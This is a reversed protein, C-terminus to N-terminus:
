ANAPMNVLGAFLTGTLQWGQPGQRCLGLRELRTGVTPPVVTTAPNTIITQVALQEQEALCEWIERLRLGISLEQSLARQWEAYPLRPTQLIWWHVVAKLLTPFGGSLALFQAIDQETPYIGAAKTWNDLMFRSDQATLTGVLCTQTTLMRGLEGLAYIQQQYDPTIRMGMLLLVTERFRNRLASLTTSVNRQSAATLQDIRDVVFLLGVNTARCHAVLAFLATQLTFPDTTQLKSETAQLLPLPFYGPALAASELIGRLLTHYIATATAETAPQLESWVPIVPKGRMAHRPHLVPHQVLCHLLTSVGSGALGLVLGSAGIELWRQLTAVEEQRYTPPYVHRPATATGDGAHAPPIHTPPVHAPPNVVTPSSPQGEIFAYGATYLLREREVGHIGLLDAVQLIVEPRGPRADGNRWRTVTAPNVGLRQALWAGSRDATTLYQDLQEAFEPYYSM